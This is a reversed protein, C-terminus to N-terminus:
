RLRGLSRGEALEGLVTLLGAALRVKVDLEECLM